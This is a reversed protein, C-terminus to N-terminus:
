QPNSRSSKPLAHPIFPVQTLPVSSRSLISKPAHWQCKDQKQKGQSGSSTMVGREPSQTGQKISWELAHMRKKCRYIQQKYITRITWVIWIVHYLIFEIPIKQRKTNIELFTKRGERWYTRIPYKRIWYFTRELVHISESNIFLYIFLYM